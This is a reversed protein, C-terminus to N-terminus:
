FDGAVSPPKKVGVTLSSFNIVKWMGANNRALTIPRSSDAGGCAVFFKAQGEKPYGIGQTRASYEKDLRFKSLAADQYDADSTGGVYSRAIHPNSRLRRIEERPNIRTSLVVKMLSAGQSEDTELMFMAEALLAVVAEPDTGQAEFRAKFEDLTM